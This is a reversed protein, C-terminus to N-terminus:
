EVLDGAVVSHPPRARSTQCNLALVDADNFVSCAAITKSTQQWVSGHQPAITKLARLGIIQAHTGIACEEKDSLPMQQHRSIEKDIEVHGYWRRLASVSPDQTPQSDPM